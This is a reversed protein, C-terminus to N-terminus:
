KMAYSLVRAFFDRHASPVTTAAFAENFARREEPTAQALRADITALFKDFGEANPAIYVLYIGDPNDTHIVEAELEYAVFTGDAVLGELLPKIYQDFLARWEQGKGSQLQTYNVWLFGDAASGAKFRRVQTRLFYDRHKVGNIIPNQAAKALVALAKEINAVSPAEFWSGHTPGNEEHVNTAYFGWSTLTGDALLKEFIPQVNKKEFAVYDDWQARAITWDSVYTFVPPQQQQQQASAALPVLVAAVAALIILSRKSM